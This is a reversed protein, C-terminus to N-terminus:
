KIKSYYANEIVRHYQKRKFFRVDKGCMSQKWSSCDLAIAAILLPAINQTVAQFAQKYIVKKIPSQFPRKAPLNASLVEM